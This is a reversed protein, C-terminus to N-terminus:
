INSCAASDRHNTKLIQFEYTQTCNFGARWFSVGIFIIINKGGFKFYEARIQNM